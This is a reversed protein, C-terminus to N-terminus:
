EKLHSETLLNLLRETRAINDRLGQIEASLARQDGSQRTINLNLTHIQEATPLHQVVNELLTVRGELGYCRGDQNERHQNCREVSVFSHRLSWILWAFLGQILLVILSAWESFSQLIDM